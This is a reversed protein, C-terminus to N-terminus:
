RWDVAFRCILWVTLAGVIACRAITAGYNSKGAIYWSFVAMILFFLAVNFQNYIWNLHNGCIQHGRLGILEISTIVSLYAAMLTNVLTVTLGFGSRKFRKM